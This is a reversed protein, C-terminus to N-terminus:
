PAPKLSPLVPPQADGDARGAGPKMAVHRVPSAIDARSPKASPRRPEDARETPRRAPEVAVHGPDGASYVPRGMVVPKGARIHVTAGAVQADLTGAAAGETRAPVSAEVLRPSAAAPRTGVEPREAPVTMAAAAMEIDADGRGGYIFGYLPYASTGYDDILPYWVRVMSWDNRPSVDIVSVGRDIKGKRGSRRTAWNAHDIVVERANVVERVVAVHGRRMGNARKFVMVSGAQPKGGTRYGAGRAQGWWTWADGMIAVGSVQRAYPVCEIARAPTTVSVCFALVFSALAVRM